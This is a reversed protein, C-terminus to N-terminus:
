MSGSGRIVAASEDLEVEYVTAASHTPFPAVSATIVCLLLASCEM